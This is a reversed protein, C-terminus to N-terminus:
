FDGAGQTLKDYGASRGPWSLEQSSLNVGRKRVVARENWRNTGSSIGEGGSDSNTWIRGM